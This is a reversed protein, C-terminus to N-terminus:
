SCFDISLTPTHLTHIYICMYLLLGGLEKYIFGLFSSSQLRVFPQKLLIFTLIIKVTKAKLLNSETIACYDCILM